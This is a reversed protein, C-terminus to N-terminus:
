ISKHLVRSYTSLEKPLSEWVSFETHDFFLYLRIFVIIDIFYQTKMKTFQKSYVHTFCGLYDIVSFIVPHNLYILILIPRILHYLTFISKSYIVEALLEIDFSNSISKSVSSYIVKISHYNKISYCSLSIPM